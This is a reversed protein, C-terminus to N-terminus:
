EGGFGRQRLITRAMERDDFNITRDRLVQTTEHGKGALLVIDGSRAQDLALEIARKRDPEVMYKASTRQLGVIADNIILLPDESRPNDSTLVVIDSLRGAAEGMLPRKARDRDGGCGFLTIIRGDPNLQKAAAILNRLADDTHAYDVVVLFSQGLDIREFRGPVASLQAIGAAIIEPSLDLAVGAGIAALINYVNIRGVLKSHIEIKGIPTEVTCSIGSFSLDPKRTTIDAGPDLGYTLTRAALGELRKGYEDDRNIIGAAPAAAGTGEFLRRKAAFYEDLTKHYDLHERTLNTFIAVAFPCTWLRDMDLAHSSAELVAHTGGLRVVDALSCQLDLSEPTTNAAPRLEHVLRHGITGFLGVECGSARLISDVLYSTTTKGNTGTVGILKLVEAPRGFYNAAMVALAKRASTVQIWPFIPPLTGPIAQESAIAVAGHEAAEAVFQNGDTKEGRIAVFLTGPKVRRSDYAIEIIELDGHAAVSKPDLKGELGRLLKALRVAPRPAGTRNGQTANEKHEIM